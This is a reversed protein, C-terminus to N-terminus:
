MLLRDRKEALTGKGIVLEFPPEQQNEGVAEEIKKLEKLFKAKKSLKDETKSKDTKFVPNLKIDIDKSVTNVFTMYIYDNNFVELCTKQDKFDSSLEFKDPNQLSGLKNDESPEMNDFSYFMKLGKKMNKDFHRIPMNFPSLKGCCKIKLNLRIGELVTFKVPTKDFIEIIIDDRSAVLRNVQAKMTSFQHNAEKM